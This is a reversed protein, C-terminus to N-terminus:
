ENFALRVPGQITFGFLAAQTTPEVEYFTGTASSPGYAGGSTYSRYSACSTVSTGPHTGNADYNTFKYLTPNATDAATGNWPNCFITYSSIRTGDGDMLPTGTGDTSAYYLTLNRITGAWSIGFALPHPAPSTTPRYITLGSSGIDGGIVYGIFRNSADYVKGHGALSDTGNAGAPGAPGECATFLLACLALAAFLFTGHKMTKM